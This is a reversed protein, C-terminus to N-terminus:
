IVRWCQSSGITASPSFLSIQPPLPDLADRHESRGGNRDENGGENRRENRRESRHESRESLVRYPPNPCVYTFVLWVLWVSRSITLARISLLVFPGLERGKNRRQEEIEITIM